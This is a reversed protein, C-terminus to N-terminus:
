TIPTILKIHTDWLNAAQQRFIGFKAKLWYTNARYRYIPGFNLHIYLLIYLTSPFAETPM